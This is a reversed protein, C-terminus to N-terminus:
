LVTSVISVVLSGFLAPWFGTVHFGLGLSASLATRRYEQLDILKAVAVWIETTDRGFVGDPPLNADRMLIM